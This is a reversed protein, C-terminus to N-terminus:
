GGDPLTLDRAQRAEASDPFNNLLLDRAAEMEEAYRLRQYTEVLRLLAKPASESAPYDRLLAEYYLIASDYAKRKFYYDGNLYAKRALKERLDTILEEAQASFASAPFSVILADCHEIAARTYEQDLQPRPSLRYYSECTKFRAEEAFRGAPYDSALRVMEAAATIFDKNEFYARGLQFRAEEVRPDGPFRGTFQDLAKIADGWKRADLKQQALEYLPDYPMQYIQPAKSACAGLL